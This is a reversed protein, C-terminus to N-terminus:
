SALMAIVGITKILQGIVGSSKASGSSSASASSSSSASGTSAGSGSSALGSLTAPNIGAKRMDAVARQYATNSMYLEHERAKRAEESSHARSLMAQQANFLNQQTVGSLNNKARGIADFLGGGQDPSNIDFGGAQMYGSTWGNVDVTNGM